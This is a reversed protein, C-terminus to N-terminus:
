EGQKINYGYLTRTPAKLVESEGFICVEVGRGRAMGIWFEVCPKEFSYEHAIGLSVGYLNIAEWKFYIALAIAYAVGCTFYDAQFEEIVKEIPYRRCPLGEWAEISFMPTNTERIRDLGAKVQEISRRNLKQKGSLV